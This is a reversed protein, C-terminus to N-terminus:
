SLTQLKAIVVPKKLISSLNHGVVTRVIQDSLLIERLTDAIAHDGLKLTANGGSKDEAILGQPDMTTKVLQQKRIGYYDWKFHHESGTRDDLIFELILQNEV